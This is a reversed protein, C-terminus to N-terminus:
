YFVFYQLIHLGSSMCEVLVHCGMLCKRCCFSVERFVFAIMIFIMRFSIYDLFDHGGM